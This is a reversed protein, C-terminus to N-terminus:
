LSKGKEIFRKGAEIGRREKENFRAAGTAPVEIYKQTHSSDRFILELTHYKKGNANEGSCHPDRHNGDIAEILDAASFGEKLRALIRKRDPEGPKAKPHITEYHAIAADVAATLGPRDPQSGARCTSTEKEPETEKEKEQELETETETETETEQPSVGQMGKAMTDLEASEADSLYTANKMFEQLLTTQPLEHLDDLYGRMTLHGIGGNYRWWTPMYLVNVAEDFAWKLTDCVRQLGKLYGEPQMGLQEAALAPSLYFIGIRNAQTSTLCHLAVLKDQPILHRFKEDSWIRPDIKRFRAM